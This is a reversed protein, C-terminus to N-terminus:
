KPVWRGSIIVAIWISGRMAVGNGFARVGGVLLMIHETVGYIGPIHYLVWTEM